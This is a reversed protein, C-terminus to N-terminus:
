GIDHVIVFESVANGINLRTAVCIMEKNRVLLMRSMYGTPINPISWLTLRVRNDYSKPSSDFANPRGNRLSFDYQSHKRNKLHVRSSVLQHYSSRHLIFTDRNM